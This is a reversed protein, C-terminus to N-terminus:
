EGRRGYGASVGYSSVKTGPTDAPIGRIRTDVGTHIHNVRSGHLSRSMEGVEGAMVRM